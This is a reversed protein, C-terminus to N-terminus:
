GIGLRVSGILSQGLGMVLPSMSQSLSSPQIADWLFFASLDWRSMGSRLAGSPLAYNYGRCRLPQSSSVDFKVRAVFEVTSSLYRRKKEKCLLVVKGM